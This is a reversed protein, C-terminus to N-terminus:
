GAIPIAVELDTGEGTPSRIELTGGLAEVRDKLGVLGSGRDPDAGGTGDDKVSIRISGDDAEVRVDVVAAHAHKAANTIAESVVYYAAVEVEAPMRADAQVDLRVPLSARRALTRLAPGIGGAALIAPHIGRSIERLEEQLKTIEGVLRSLEANLGDLEPPLAAQANRLEIALTLLQQQAGDHLDREIQRRAEDASAVVRRCQPM